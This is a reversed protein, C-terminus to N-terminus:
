FSGRLKLNGPRELAGPICYSTSKHTSAVGFGGWAYAAPAVYPWLACHEKTRFTAMRNIWASWQM